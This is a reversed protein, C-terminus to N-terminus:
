NLILRIKNPKFNTFLTLLGYLHNITIEGKLANILIM